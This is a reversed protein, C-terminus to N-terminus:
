TLLTEAVVLQSGIPSPRVRPVRSRFIGLLDFRHEKARCPAIVTSTAVRLM